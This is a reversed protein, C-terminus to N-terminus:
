FTVFILVHRLFMIELNDNKVYINIAFHFKYLLFDKKKFFKRCIQLVSHLCYRSPRSALGRELGMSDKIDM